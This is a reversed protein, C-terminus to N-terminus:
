SGVGTAQGSLGGIISDNMDVLPKLDGRGGLIAATHREVFSSISILDARLAPPLQNSPSILDLRIVMWFKLNDALADRLGESLMRLRDIKDATDFAGIMPFLRGNLRSLIQRETERPTAVERITRRYANLSM